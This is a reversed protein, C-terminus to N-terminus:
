KSPTWIWDIIQTDQMNKELWSMQIFPTLNPTPDKHPFLKSLITNILEKM